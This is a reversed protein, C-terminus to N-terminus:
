EPVYVIRGDPLRYATGLREGDGARREGTEVFRDLPKGDKVEDRAAHAAAWAVVLAVAFVMAVDFLNAVLALPEVEDSELLARHSHRRRM